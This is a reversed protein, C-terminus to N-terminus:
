RPSCVGADCDAELDFIQGTELRNLVTVDFVPLAKVLEDYKSETIAEYPLLDYFSDDYPLFSVAMIEDWHEWVFEEVDNWEHDRVHVTISVNHDVYHKMFMLYDELQEIAGVDGKTQGQPSKVPFEVVVTSMDVENQGVEPNWPYGMEMMAKALPDLANIRIRRLYFPSHSRHIGSSVTPLLSLTGSPKITTQLLPKNIGLEGAFLEAEDNTVGKLISLIDVQEDKSMGTANVMDQWGTLSCGILNDRKSIVDWSKLELEPLTMRIGARTSLIQADIVGELDLKGDIVFAMVNIETLNCVGKRDLLIEGCNHAVYGEVVGWHIEPEHFDYVSEIRGSLEVKTVYNGKENILENLADNKYGHVFGILRAFKRVSDTRSINIDYSERCVYEGNDFEVPKAKNTTYYANIGFHGLLDILQARLVPSTTKYAVRCGKIVSGNASYMGRLFSLKDVDSWDSFLTFPMEREPLVRGDFGLQRLDQNFGTVYYTRKRKSWTVDFYKAMDEDNIGLNVELGKHSTSTLRTLNGDGQLFGYRVYEDSHIIDLKEFRSVRQNLLDIAECESGDTLEFRHDPTCTIVTGDTFKVDLTAKEGTYWVSGQTVNGDANILMPKTDVLEDFRKYGDVTLLKMDGTFCPNVGNFNERRKKGYEANVWAPEGSYRMQEIQWHLFERTPKSEYYISNNSVQRHAISTDLIWKGNLETYLNNKMKIAKNDDQDILAIEATRRVGGSVVGEGEINLIDIVDIPELKGGFKNSKIVRNMKSFVDHLGEHGSAYGGFRKLAEGKPRVSNYQIIVKKINRYTKDTFLKVYLEIAQKWGEKSDGVEIEIEDLTISMGTYENRFMKPKAEYYKHEIILDQRFQPLKDVDSKLTRFGVGAGILLLYLLEDFTEVSDVVDFACNFNSLPYMESIETGGAFMTRGSLFQRLYFMNDFLKEAEAVTSTSSLNMSYEVVRTVTEIWEERRNQEPLYRAYTRLYTFKGVVTKFPDVNKYKRKFEDSLYKFSM